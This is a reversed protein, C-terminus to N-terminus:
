SIIQVQLATKVIVIYLLVCPFAFGIECAGEQSRGPIGM